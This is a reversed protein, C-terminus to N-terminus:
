QLINLGAILENKVEEPIDQQGRYQDILERHRQRLATIKKDILAAKDKHIFGKSRAMTYNGLVATLRDVFCSLWPQIGDAFKADTLTRANKIENEIAEFYSKPDNLNGGPNKENPM